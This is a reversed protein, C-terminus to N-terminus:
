ADKTPYSDDFDEKNESSGMNKYIIPPFDTTEFFVIDYSEDLGDYGYECRARLEYSERSTYNFVYAKCNAWYNEELWRRQEESNSEYVGTVEPREAWLRLTGKIEDNLKEYQKESIRVQFCIGKHVEFPLLLKWHKQLYNKIAEEAEDVFSIEDYIM